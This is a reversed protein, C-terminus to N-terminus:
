LLGQRRRVAWETGFCALMGLLLAARDWLPTWNMKGPEPEAEVRPRLLPGLDDESILKGGSDAALKALYGPNASLDDKDEAPATVTLRCSAAPPPDGPEALVDIRYSGPAPVALVADWAGPQDPTRSAGIEQVAKGDRSVRL